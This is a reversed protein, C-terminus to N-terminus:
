GHIREDGQGIWDGEPIHKYDLELPDGEWPDIRVLTTNWTCHGEGSLQSAQLTNANGGIDIGESNMEAWAGQGIVVVGPMVLSTVKARRVLSGYASSVLVAEGKAVGARQADLQNIWVDHPFVERLQAVNNFLQHSRNPSHVSICQLPYTTCKVEAVSDASGSREGESAKAKKNAISNCLQKYVLADEYGQRAPVYHAVPDIESLGFERFRFPLQQCYIEFKGSPTPLPHKDPNDRFRTYQVHGLGDNEHRPVQYVGTKLFEKLAIRGEHPHGDIGLEDLDQQTVCILPEWTGDEGIVEAGLLENFAMQKASLPQVVKPDIGWRTALQAEIWLDEKAEGPPDLVKQAFILAERNIQTLVQADREWMASAPLVIDSYRCDNTMWLDSAVAFEVKRYAEVARSFHPNQNMRGGDGIKWIMEIDIPQIGHIFDHYTGEVVADWVEPMAIGYYANPDYKGKALMGGGRPPQCLPNKPWSCGKSGPRVLAPGGFVMNGASGGASVEAGPYGVNGTMWGVTYFAQVFRAGNDTRAPAQSSRMTMPKVTAMEIALEEIKAAPVGCIDSAWEPTKPCGDYTGLVYDKFNDQAPAGEPMHDKDFGVCYTDLFQQDQLNHTIMVYALGLLLATDTGPRVPIWEDALVQMSPNFWSDIFIFKAGAKKAQLYHYLPNGAQSWAPNQGWMIILKAKRLEYRDSFDTAGLDYSGKMSNSVLPFAGQSAQGWTVSCGGYANLSPATYLGPVVNRYEYGTALIAKNGYTEKIRTVESAVIDLAEDWSIREWEDVGRLQKDGGGVRWHKRKLPYKLRDQSFLAHRLSRGRACGRQQPFDVSDPHLSDTDQYLVKGDCVFSRNVCRGGCAFFCSHTVWHGSAQSPSYSTTTQM